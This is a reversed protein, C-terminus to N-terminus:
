KMLYDNSVVKLQVRGIEPCTREILPKVVFGERLHDAGSVFSSGSAANILAKYWPGVYFHPPRPLSVEAISYEASSVWNNGRMVDFVVLGLKNGELGYHLKQVRGFVEGYVVTGPNSRCYAELEPYQELVKWWINNSGPKRWNNRSGVWMREGDFSWRGSAGDIKETISVMEGEVLLDPYRFYNEVDYVPAYFPPAAETDGNMLSPELPEYRKVNLLEAVDDGEASGEPAHVLLGQSLVGRLRKVRVHEHGALFAFDPRSSDVIMDPQVYAALDGEKFDDKGICCTYGFVNVINLKDALPHPKIDTLRVVEVRHTSKTSM